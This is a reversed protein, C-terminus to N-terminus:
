HEKGEVHRGVIDSGKLIIGKRKGPNQSNPDRKDLGTEWSHGPIAAAAALSVIAALVFYFRM